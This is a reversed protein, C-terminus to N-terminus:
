KPHHRALNFLNQTYVDGIYKTVRHKLFHAIPNVRHYFGSCVYKFHHTGTQM